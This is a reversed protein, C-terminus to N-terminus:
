DHRSLLSDSVQKMLNYVSHTNITLFILLTRSKNLLNAFYFHKFDSQHGPFISYTKLILKIIFM